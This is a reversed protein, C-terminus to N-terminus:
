GGTKPARTFALAAAGLLGVDDGLEATVIDFTDHYLPMTRWQATRRMPTLLLDGANSVGGGIIIRQPNFIHVLNAIAMGVYDGAEELVEIALADGAQAASVVQETRIDDLTEQLSSNGGHKIRERMVRAINPGSAVAEVCGRNGCGCLPGDPMIQMHGIEAGLGQAGLLMENNVIIGGGIGTSVTVYIIDSYGRGAGYRHEALAALNADNGIWVDKDLHAELESELAIMEWGDLNPAKLVVGTYPNSPGPAIVGVGRVEEPSVKAMVDRVANAIRAIVRKSGSKAETKRKDRAVIKGQEDILAARLHTGGFDVGVVYQAM